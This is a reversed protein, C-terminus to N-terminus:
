SKILFRFSWPLRALPTRLSILLDAACSLDFCPSCPNSFTKGGGGLGGFFGGVGGLAGGAEVILFGLVGAGGAAVGLVLPLDFLGAALVGLAGAAIGDVVGPAPDAGGALGDVGVVGGM